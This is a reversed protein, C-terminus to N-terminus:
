ASEADEAHYEEVYDAGAAQTPFEPKTFEHGPAEEEHGEEEELCAVEVFSDDAVEAKVEGVAHFPEEDGVEGPSGDAGGDEEGEEAEHGAEVGAEVAKVPFVDVLDAVEPAVRGAPEEKREKGSVDEEAEGVSEPKLAQEAEKREGEGGETVPEVGLSVREPKGEVVDEHTDEEELQATPPPHQLAADLPAGGVDAGQAECM